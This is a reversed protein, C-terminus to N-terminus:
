DGYGGARSGKTKMPLTLNPYPVAKGNIVFNSVIEPFNPLLTLYHDHDGTVYLANKDWGGNAAIWNLIEQVGDNIDLMAGLMDDMHDSHAAWDIDGQEYMLFFGKTSKGLFKMAERVHVNMSPINTLDAPATYNCLTAPTTVNVGTIGTKGASCYRISYISDLGRIPMKVNNVAEPTM